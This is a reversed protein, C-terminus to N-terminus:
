LLVVSNRTANNRTHLELPKLLWSNNLLNDNLEKRPNKLKNKGTICIFDYNIESLADSLVGEEGEEMDFLTPLSRGSTETTM